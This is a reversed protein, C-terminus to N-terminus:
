KIFKQENNVVKKIDDIIKKFIKIEESFHKGFIKSLEETMEDSNQLYVGGDVKHSLRNNKRDYFTKHEPNDCNKHTLLHEEKIESLAKWLDKAKSLKTSFPRISFLCDTCYLDNKEKSGLNVIYKSIIPLIDFLMENGKKEFEALKEKPIANRLIPYYKNQKEDKVHIDIFNGKESPKTYATVHFMQGNESLIPIVIGDKSTVLGVFKSFDDAVPVYFKNLKQEKIKEKNM